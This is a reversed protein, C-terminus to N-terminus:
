PPVVSQKILKDRSDISDYKQIINFPNNVSNIDM